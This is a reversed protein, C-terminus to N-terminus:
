SAFALEPTATLLDKTYPHAPSTFIHETEGQEVIEGARMVLVRHAFGRVVSLDHSVFLFALGRRERLDTLLDLIQARVSVDLASVAEDLLIIDPSTAMARAIAIRQRQGGSFEHPYKQADEVNLGVAELLECVRQKVDHKPLTENLLYFPEAIIHAVRQRPNFSGYPDQFVMQLRKRMDRLNAKNPRADNGVFPTGGILVEGSAIPQLGMIAKSLTSKGCGSEGVLALTEGAAIKLSVNKVAQFVTKSGLWKQHSYYECVLNRVELVPDEGPQGESPSSYFAAEFLAKSYPHQLTEASIKGNVT